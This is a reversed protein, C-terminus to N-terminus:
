PPYLPPLGDSNDANFSKQLQIFADLLPQGDWPQDHETYLVTNLQNLAHQFSESYMAADNLKFNNNRALTDLCSRAQVPNNSKCARKFQEILQSNKSIPQHIIAPQHRAHRWLVFFVLTSIALIACLLQWTSVPANNSISTISAAGKIDLEYAPLEAFELRNELTNWWPLRIAPITLYGQQKAVLAQQETIHSVIGHALASQARKAPSNYAYFEPLQTPLLSPLGTYPLGEAQISIQRTIPTDLALSQVDPQWQETLTLNKAPLWLADQPFETPPPLVNLPIAASHTELQIPPSSDQTALLASFSLEPIVLQGVHQPFIAYRVEIVGHLIGNIMQESLKPEGLPEIRASPLHLTELHGGGYLTQAHYIKLTLIAQAQVYVTETDMQTRIFLPELSLQESPFADVQIRIPESLYQGLQIAPIQQEGQHKPLLRFSWRQVTQNDSSNGISRHSSLLEFKEKLPSIDPEIFYTSDDLELILEFSEGLALQQRDTTATFSLAYSTQSCAFLVIYLLHLFHRHM